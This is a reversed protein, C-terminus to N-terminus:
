PKIEKVVAEQAPTLKEGSAKSAVLTQDVMTQTGEDAKAGRITQQTSGGTVNKDKARLVFTAAAGFFVYESVGWIIGRAPEAIWEILQPKGHIIASAIAIYGSASTKWNAGFLWTVAKSFVGPEDSM